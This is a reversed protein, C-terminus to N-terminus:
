LKLVLHFYEIEGNQFHKCLTLTWLFKSYAVHNVNNRFLSWLFRWLHSMFSEYNLTLQGSLSLKSTMSCAWKLNESDGTNPGMIPWGNNPGPRFCQHQLWLFSKAFKLCPWTGDHFKWPSIPWGKGYIYITLHSSTDTESVFSINSLALSPVVQGVIWFSM